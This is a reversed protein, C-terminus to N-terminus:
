QLRGGHRLFLNKGLNTWRVIPTSPTVSGADTSKSSNSALSIHIKSLLIPQCPPVYTLGIGICGRSDQMSLIAQKCLKRLLTSIVCSLLEPPPPSIQWWGHLQPYTVSVHTIFSTDSLNFLRLADDAM